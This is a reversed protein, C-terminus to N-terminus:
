PATSCNTAAPKCGVNMISGMRPMQIGSLVVEIGADALVADFLGPFKGDRDRIMFRVRCGADDLDM